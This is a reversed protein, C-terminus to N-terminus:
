INSITWGKRRGKRDYYKEVVPRGYKTEKQLQYLAQTVKRDADQIDPRIKKIQEVIQTKTIYRLKM